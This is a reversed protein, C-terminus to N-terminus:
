GAHQQQMRDIRHQQQVRCQQSSSNAATSKWRLCLGAAARQFTAHFTKPFHTCHTCATQISVSTHKIHRHTNTKNKKSRRSNRGGMGMCSYVLILRIIITHIFNYNVKAVGFSSTWDHGQIQTGTSTCSYVSQSYSSTGTCDYLKVATPIRVTGYPQLLM